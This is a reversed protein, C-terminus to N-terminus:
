LMLRVAGTAAMSLVLNETNNAVVVTYIGPTTFRWRNFLNTTCAGVSLLRAYAIPSTLMTGFYVGIHCMGFATNRLLAIEGPTLIKLLHLTLSRVILQQGLTVPISAVTISKNQRVETQAFSVPFDTVRELRTPTVFPKNM